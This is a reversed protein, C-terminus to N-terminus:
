VFIENSITTIVANNIEKDKNFPFKIELTNIAFMNYNTRSIKAFRYKYM